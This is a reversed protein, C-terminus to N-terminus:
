PAFSVDFSFEPSRETAPIYLEGGTKKDFYIFVPEGANLRKSVDTRVKPRNSTV